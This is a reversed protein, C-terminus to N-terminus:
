GCVIEMAWRNLDALMTTTLEDDGPYQRIAVRCGGAHLLSLDRCVRSEDYGASEKSASLLLPLGRLDNLRALPQNGTPLPGDITAVGGFREPHRLAIRMAMTGGTGVGALLVREPHLGFRDAASEIAEFIADEATDISEPRDSWAPGTEAHDTGRPAVAVFNRTSVHRMVDPLSQEDSGEGHLWVLLPYRYGPEYGKPTFVAFEPRTAPANPSETWSWEAPVSRRAASHPVVGTPVLPKLQVKLSSPLSPVSTVRQM